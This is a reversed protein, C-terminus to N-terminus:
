YKTSKNGQMDTIATSEEM